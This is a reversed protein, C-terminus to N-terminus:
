PYIITLDRLPLWFIRGMEDTVRVKEEKKDIEDVIVISKEYLAGNISMITKNVVAKLRDM